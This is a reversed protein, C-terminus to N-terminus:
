EDFKFFDEFGLMAELSEKRGSPHQEREDAGPDKPDRPDFTM